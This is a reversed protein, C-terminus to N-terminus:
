CYWPESLYPIPSRPPDILPAPLPPIPLLAAKHAAEWLRLFIEQRSAGEAEGTQVLQLAAENLQDVRADPHQWRYTLASDDFGQLVQHIDPLELLKSGAPILLRMALQIPSVHEILAQEALLTLLATYDALSTWPTFAVFTPQLALGLRRCLALAALFDQRTHGKDLRELIHDQVAEVASTILVCGTDRLV